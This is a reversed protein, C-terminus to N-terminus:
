ILRLKIPKPSNLKNVLQHYGDLFNEKTKNLDNKDVQIDIYEYKSKKNYYIDKSKKRQKEKTKEYYRKNILKRSSTNQTTNQNIDM